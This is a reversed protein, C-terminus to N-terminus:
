QRLLKQALAALEENMAKQEEPSALEAGNGQLTYKDNFADPVLEVQPTQWVVTSTQRSLELLRDLDSSSLQGEALVENTACNLIRYSGDKQVTMQQCLGAIGGSREWSVLAEGTEFVELSDPMPETTPTPQAGSSVRICASLLATIVVLVFFKKM